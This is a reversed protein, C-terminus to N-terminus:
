SFKLLLCSAIQKLREPTKLAFVESILTKPARTLSDFM